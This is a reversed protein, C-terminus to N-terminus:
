GFRLKKKKLYNTVKQNSILKLLEKPVNKLEKFQSKLYRNPVHRHNTNRVKHNFRVRQTFQKGFVTKDKLELKNTKLLFLFLKTKQRNRNETTKEIRM